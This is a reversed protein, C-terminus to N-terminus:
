RWGTWGALMGLVPQLENAHQQQQSCSASELWGALQRSAQQGVKAELPEM